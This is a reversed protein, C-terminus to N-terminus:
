KLMGKLLEIIKFAAEDGEKVDKEEISFILLYALSIGLNDCISQMTTQHPFTKNIEIQCLANVSIGIKYALERQSFGKSKRIEKVATGLRM